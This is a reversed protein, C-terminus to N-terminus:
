DTHGALADIMRKIVPDFHGKYRCQLEPLRWDEGTIAKRCSPAGCACDKSYPTSLNMAYDFLLEEGIAIPTRAVFVIQDRLWVNPDCGHNIFLAVNDVDERSSPCLFLEETVQMSFGGYLRDRRMAEEYPVVDGSRVGVVEGAQIPAVCYLGKGHITSTAVETKASRYSRL